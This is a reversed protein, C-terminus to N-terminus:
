VAEENHAEGIKKKRKCVACIAFEEDVHEHGDGYTPEGKKEKFEDRWAGNSLTRAQHVMEDAENSSEAVKSITVLRDISIDNINEPIFGFSDLKEFMFIAKTATSKKEDIEPQALYAALTADEDGLYDKYAQNKDILSLQEAEVLLLRRIELKTKIHNQCLIFNEDSNRLEKPIRKM